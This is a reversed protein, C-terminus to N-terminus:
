PKTQCKKAFRDKMIRFESEFRAKAWKYVETDAKLHEKAYIKLPEYADLAAEQAKFDEPVVGGFKSKGGRTANVKELKDLALDFGYPAAKQQLLWMSDEFRDFLGVFFFRRLRRIASQSEIPTSTLFECPMDPRHKKSIIVDAIEVLSSNPDFRPLQKLGEDTYCSHNYKLFRILSKIQDLPERIMAFYLMLRDGLVTPYAFRFLHSSVADIEPNERLRAQLFPLEAIAGTNFNWDIDLTRGPFSKGLLDLVALGGTKPIHVQVLLPRYKGRRCVYVPFSGPKEDGPVPDSKRVNFLHFDQASCALYAQRQEPWADIHSIDYGSYREGPSRDYPDELLVIDGSSSLLSILFGDTWDEPYEGFWAAIRFREDPLSETPSSLDGVYIRRGPFREAVRSADGTSFVLHSIVAGHNEFAQLVPHLTGGIALVKAGRIEGEQMHLAALCEEAQFSSDIEALAAPSSLFAYKM